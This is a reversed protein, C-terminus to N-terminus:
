DDAMQESYLEQCYNKFEERTLASVKAYLGLIFKKPLKVKEESFVSENNRLIRLYEMGSSLVFRIFYDYSDNGAPIHIFYDIAHPIDNKLTEYAMRNLVEIRDRDREFYSQPWFSRRRETRDEQFDRMINLKQLFLGFPVATCRLAEYAAENVNDGKLHLLDTLYLGVTGAVYYCYQNLDKQDIIPRALFECMGKAMEATWKRSLEREASSLTNYLAITAEYNKFVFAEGPPTVQLMRRQVEPASSGQKLAECLRQILDRKESVGLRRSDEITDIAKNLNYQVMTPIKFRSDLNLIPISFSRSQKFLSEENAKILSKPHSKTM